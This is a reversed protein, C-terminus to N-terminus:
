AVTLATQYSPVISLTHKGEKLLKEIRDLTPNLDFISGARGFRSKSTTTAIGEEVKIVTDALYQSKYSGRVDGTKTNQFTGWLIWQEPSSINKQRLEEFLDEGGILNNVSDIFVFDPKHLAISNRIFDADTTYKVEVKVNFFRILMQMQQHRIDQETLYLHVKGKNQLSSILSFMLTSKGSGPNGSVMFSAGRHLRDGLFDAWVDDLKLHPAQYDLTDATNDMQYPNNDALQQQQKRAIDYPIYHNKYAYHGVAGGAVMGAGRFYMKSNDVTDSNKVDSCILKQAINALAFGALAGTAISLLDQWLKPKYLSDDALPIPENRIINKVENIALGAMGSAARNAFQNTARDALSSLSPLQFGKFEPQAENLRQQQKRERDKQRKREAGEPSRQNAM